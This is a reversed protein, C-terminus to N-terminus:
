LPHFVPHKNALGVRSTGTEGFGPPKGLKAQPQLPAAPFTSCSGLPSVGMVAVSKEIGRWDSGLFVSLERGFQLFRIFLLVTQGVRWSLFVKFATWPSISLGSPGHKWVCVDAKAIQSHGAGSRLHCKPPTKNLNFFLSVFFFSIM